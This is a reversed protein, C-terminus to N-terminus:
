NKLDCISKKQGIITKETKWLSTSFKVGKPVPFTVGTQKQVNALTTTFTSLSKKSASNAFVFALGENTRTDILIKFFGSPVTVMNKGIVQNQKRDYIPGAYVLLADNRSMAWVRTRTELSKWIGRNFGPIQPTMNSLIFSDQEAQVSWRMDEANAIHGTDYGSKAYDKPVSPNVLSQDAEFDNSRPVCGMVHEPTLVYSVWVPIKAVNDHELVYGARCIKSTSQKQSTPFGYPAQTKCEDLSLSQQAGFSSSSLVLFVAALFSRIIM